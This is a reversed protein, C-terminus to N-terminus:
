SNLVREFFKLEVLSKSSFILEKSTNRRSNASRQDFEHGQGMGTIWRGHRQCQRPWSSVWNSQSKYESPPRSQDHSERTLSIWHSIMVNFWMYNHNEASKPFIISVNLLSKFFVNMQNREKGSFNEGSKLKRWKKAELNLIECSSGVICFIMNFWKSLKM